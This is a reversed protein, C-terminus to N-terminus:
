TANSAMNTRDSGLKRRGFFFFGKWTSMRLSLRLIMWFNLIVKGQQWKGNETQKQIERLIIFNLIEDKFNWGKFPKLQKKM